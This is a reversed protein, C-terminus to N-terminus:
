ATANAPPRIIRAPKSVVTSSQLEQRAHLETLKALTFAGIGMVLDRVAVDLYSGMALLNVAIGALWAGVIYAGYRTTRHNLVLLGAIIEIIGVAHMFTPASIPIVKLALPNLYHTWDTLFNTFKDLGAIIPVLGYTLRLTWWLKNTSAQM